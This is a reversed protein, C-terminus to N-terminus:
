PADVVTGAPIPPRLWTLLRSFVDPAGAPPRVRLTLMHDSIGRLALQIFRAGNIEAVSFVEVTWRRDFVALEHGDVASFLEEASPALPPPSAPLEPACAVPDPVRTGSRVVVRLAM